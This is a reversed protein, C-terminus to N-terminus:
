LSLKVLFFFVSYPRSSNGVTSYVILDTFHGCFGM